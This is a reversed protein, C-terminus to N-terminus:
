YKTNLNLHNTNFRKLGYIMKQVEEVQQILSNFKQQNMYQLDKAMMLLTETECLSGNAISLFHNFDRKSNRGAGEAINLSVSVAARRTQSTIGFKESGPYSDTAKYIDLAMKYSKVWVDLKKYHNM